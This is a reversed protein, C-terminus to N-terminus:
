CVSTPQGYRPSLFLIGSGREEYHVQCVAYGSAKYKREADTIYYPSKM